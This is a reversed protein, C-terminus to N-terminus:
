LFICTDSGRKLYLVALSQCLHKGIFKEFNKFFNKNCFVESRSSRFIIVTFLCKNLILLLLLLLTDNVYTTKTHKNNVQFLYLWFNLMILYRLNLNQYPQFGNFIKALYLYIKKKCFIVSDQLMKTWSLTTTKNSIDIKFICAVM